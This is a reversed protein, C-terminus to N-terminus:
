QPPMKLADLIKHRWDFATKLCVGTQKAAKRLSMGHIMCVIYQRFQDRKQIHAICTKTIDTFAKKCSVCLYRRYHNYTGHGRIVAVCHPFEQARKGRRIDIGEQDVSFPNSESFLISEITRRLTNLEETSMSKLFGSSKDM